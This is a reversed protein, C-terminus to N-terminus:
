KRPSAAIWAARARPTISSRSAPTVVADNWVPARAEVALPRQDGVLHRGEAEGLDGERVRLQLGLEHGRDLSAELAQECGLRRGEAGLGPVRRGEVIEGGIAAVRVEAVDVEREPHQPDHLRAVAEGPEVIPDGARQRPPERARRVAEDLRVGALRVGGVHGRHDSRDAEVILGRAAIM